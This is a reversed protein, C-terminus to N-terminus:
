GQPLGVPYSGQEVAQPRRGRQDHDLGISIPPGVDGEVLEPALADEDLLHLRRHDPAVGIGGDM